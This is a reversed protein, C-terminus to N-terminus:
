ISPTKVKEVVVTYMTRGNFDIEEHMRPNSVVEYGRSLTSELRKELKVPNPDKIILREPSDRWNGSYYDTM